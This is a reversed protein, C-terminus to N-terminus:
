RQARVHAYASSATSRRDICYRELDEPSVSSNLRSGRVLIPRPFWCRASSLDIIAIPLSRFDHSLAISELCSCARACWCCCLVFRYIFMELICAYLSCVCRWTLHSCCRADDTWAYVWRYTRLAANINVCYLVCVMVWVLAIRHWILTIDHEIMKYLWIRFRVLLSSIVTFFM